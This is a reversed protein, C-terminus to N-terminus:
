QLSEALMVSPDARLHELASARGSPPLQLLWAGSATPGDVVRAGDRQLADRMAQETAQPKFRVVADAGPAGHGASSLTRYPSLNAGEVWLLGAALAAVAAAQLALMGRLAPTTGHWGVRLGAWLSRWRRRLREGPGEVAEEHLPTQLRERLASFGRDAGGQNELHAYRAQLSREWDLDAQCRPCDAVHALAMRREAEDLRGTLLWPLLHQVENHAPADLQVIRGGPESPKM